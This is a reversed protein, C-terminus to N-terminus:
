RVWGPESSERAHRTSYLPAGQTVSAVRADRLARASSEFWRRYGNRGDLWASDHAHVHGVVDALASLHTQASACRRAPSLMGPPHVIARCGV